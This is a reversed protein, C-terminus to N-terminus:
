DLNMINKRVCNLIIGFFDMSFFKIKKPQIKKPVKKQFLKSSRSFFCLSKLNISVQHIELFFKM